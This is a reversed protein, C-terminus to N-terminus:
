EGLVVSCAVVSDTPGPFVADAFPWSPTFTIRVTGEPANRCDARAQALMQPWSPQATSRFVSAGAGPAWCILLVVAVVSMVLERRGPLWRDLAIVGAATWMILPIVFYRNNSYGAAAPVAGLLIGLVLLLGIGNAAASRRSLLVTALCVVGVLGVLGAGGWGAAASTFSGAEDLVSAEPWFTLLASPFTEAWARAAEVSFNVVRQSEANRIVFAQVGLATLMALAVIAASRRPIRRRLGQYGLALLLIASSPMTLATVVAGTSYASTPFRREPPFAVALTAAYILLMYGSATTNIAEFGMVPLLSPLLAVLISAVVGAGSARMIVVSVATVLGALVAAAINTAMPWEDMPFASVPWAVLRPVFLLYGAFPDVLCPVVGHAKVCLPFLGDEAWVITSLAQPNAMTIRSISLVSAAM